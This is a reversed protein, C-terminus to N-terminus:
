FATYGLWVQPALAFSDVAATATATGNANTNTAGFAGTFFRVDLGISFAKRRIGQRVMVPHFAFRLRGGYTAGGASSFDQCGTNNTCKSAGIAAFLGFEPGLGLSIPVQDFTYEGMVGAGVGVGGLKGVIVDFQPMAYVGWNNNIQVGLQGQVGISGINVVGPVLLVGGNLTVGGRFRPGDAEVYRPPPPGPYYYQASAVGATLLTGSLTGAVALSRALRSNM